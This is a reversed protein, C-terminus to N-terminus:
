KWMIEMTSAITCTFHLDEEERALKIKDTCTSNINHETSWEHILSMDRNDPAVEETSVWIYSNMTQQEHTVINIYWHM